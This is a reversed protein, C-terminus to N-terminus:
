KLCGANSRDLTENMSGTRYGRLDLAVYSFGIQRFYNETETRLGPELMRDMDEPLLEIRALKGHARVRLQSFGREMLFVEAAEVRALGENTIPEGYPFRSALCAFSPKEWTPLGMKKSLIRIDEKTLGAQKLPSQIGLETIARMGPRFDKMDDVNSGEAVVQMHNERAIRCINRFIETKCYYCRAPPNEAFGPIRMADVSCILQRIQEKQCFAAAEQREREPVAAMHVTVALVQDKLAERAAYLLFTSDVGGSFAVAASKYSELLKKLKEYKTEANM